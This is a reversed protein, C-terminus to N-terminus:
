AVLHAGRPRQPARIHLSPMLSFPHSPPELTRMFPHPGGGAEIGRRGIHTEGRGQRPFCSFPAPLSPSSPGGIVGRERPCWSVSPVPLATQSPAYGPERQGGEGVKHLARRSRAQVPLLFSAPLTKGPSPRGGAGCAEWSELRPDAALCCKPPERAFVGAEMISAGCSPSLGCGQPRAPSVIGM